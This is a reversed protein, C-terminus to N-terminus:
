FSIGTLPPSLPPVGVAVRLHFRSRCRTGWLRAGVDPSRSPAPCLHSKTVNGVRDSLSPTHLPPQAFTSPRRTALQNAMPPLFPELPRSPVSFPLCPAPPQPAASLPAALCLAILPPRFGSGLLPPAHGLVQGQAADETMRPRRPGPSGRVAPKQIALADESSATWSRDEM